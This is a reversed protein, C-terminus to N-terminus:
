EGGITEADIYLRDVWDYQTFLDYWQWLVDFRETSTIWETM